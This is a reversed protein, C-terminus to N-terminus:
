REDKLSHKLQDRFEPTDQHGHTTIAHQLAVPLVEREEGAITLTCNSESPM